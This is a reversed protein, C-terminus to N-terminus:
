CQRGAVPQPPLKAPPRFPKPARKLQESFNARGPDPKHAFVHGKVLKPKPKALPRPVCDDVNEVKGEETSPRVGERKPLGPADVVIQPDSSALPASWNVFNEYGDTRPREPPNRGGDGRPADGGPVAAVRLVAVGPSPVPRSSVPSVAAEEVVPVVAPPREIVPPVVPPPRRYLFDQDTQHSAAPVTLTILGDDVPGSAGRDAVLGVAGSHADDVDTPAGIRYEGPVLGIFSYTGAAAGASGTTTSRVRDDGTGFVGDAGAHTLTVTVGGLGNEPQQGGFVGDAVATDDWLRGSVISLGLSDFGVYNNLKVSDHGVGSSSGREMGSVTETLGAIPAGEGNAGARVVLRTGDLSPSWFSVAVGHEAVPQSPDVITAQYRVTVRAAPALTPITLDLSDADSFDLAGAPRNVSAPGAFVQNAAGAFDEYLWLDYATDNGSNSFTVEYTVTNGDVAVVTKRLDAIAPEVVTVTDIDSVGRDVANAQLAFSVPLTTATSVGNVAAQNGLVNAVAVNFEVVLWEGDADDAINTLDGLLFRVGDGSAFAEAAAGPAGAPRSTLNAISNGPGGNPLVFAPRAAGIDGASSAGGNPTGDAIQLGAGSLTGSTLEGPDAVLAVAASGDNFFRLGPPLTVRLEADDLQAQPVRVLARYRIVEGVNVPLSEPLQPQGAQGHDPATNPESTQVITLALDDAVVTADAGDSAAFDNLGPGAGDVGTRESDATGAFRASLTGTDNPTGPLSSFSVDADVSLSQGVTASPDIQAQLRFVVTELPDLRDITASANGADIAVVVGASAAAVTLSGPQYVLGAPFAIPALVGDFGPANGGGSVVVEFVVRDGPGADAGIARASVTWDPERVTLALSTAALQTQQASGADAHVRSDTSLTAGERNDPTNLVLSTYRITITEATANDTDANTLTGFDIDLRADENGADAAIGSGDSLDQDDALARIAAATGVSSALGPSFAISDVSVFAQGAAGSAIFRDRVLFGAHTGEPVKIVLESQVTEGIVVDAGASVGDPQSSAVATLSSLAAAPTVTAADVEGAALGAGGASAAYNLLVAQSQLPQQSQATPKIMLDYLVILVNAGTANPSGGPQLGPAIREQVPGPNVFEIGQPGFFLTRVASDDAPSLGSGPDRLNSLTGPTGDYIVTGDGLVVRLNTVDAAGYGPPLEDRLAVDFAGDDGTNQLAVAFRVTDGADLGSLDTDLQVVDAGTVTGGLTGASGAADILTTEGVVTGTGEALFRPTFTSAGSVDDRVAGKFLTLAPPVLLHDWASLATASVPLSAELPGTAAELSWDGGLHSAGTRDTSAAVDARTARALASLFDAGQQGAGIDCGYLLLDGDDALAAGIASLEASYRAIAASDVTRTGLRLAGGSGHSVIHIADYRGQASVARAIQVLGDAAGNLLLVDTGPTVNGAFTQWDAVSCDIVLLQRPQSLGSGPEVSVGAIFAGLSEPAAPAPREVAEVVRPEVVAAAAGDFLM